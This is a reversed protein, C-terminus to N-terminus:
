FDSWHAQCICKLVTYVNKSSMDLHISNLSTWSHLKLRYKWFMQRRQMAAVLALLEVEPLDGVTPVQSEGAKGESVQVKAM